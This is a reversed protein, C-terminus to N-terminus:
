KFCSHSELKLVNNKEDSCVAFKFGRCHILVEICFQGDQFEEFKEIM